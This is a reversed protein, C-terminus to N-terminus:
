IKNKCKQINTTYFCSKRDNKNEGMYEEIVGCVLCVLQGVATFIEVM